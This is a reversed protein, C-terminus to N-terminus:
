EEGGMADPAVDSLGIVPEARYPEAHPHAHEHVHGPAGGHGPHAPPLQGDHVVRGHRLVVARDLLPAFAETEHLVVLVSTGAARMRGITAVFAEITALDIGTTPEDLVLLDPRRVLARAILVRQHQGGSLEQVPRDAAHALDMAALAELAADRTARRWRGGFLGRRAGDSLAGARVVELATTPVGTAAAQRQPVYGIRPWPADGQRDGFLEVRGAALPVIGLCAKVLTSKGSGNAGLLAVVEGAGVTLDVGSLIRRGSLVVSVDRAALAPTASGPVAASASTARAGSAATM